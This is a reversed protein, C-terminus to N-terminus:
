TISLQGVKIYDYILM